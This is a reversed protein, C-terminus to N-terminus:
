FELSLGLGGGHPGVIPVLQLSSDSEGKTENKPLPKNFDTPLFSEDAKLQTTPEYNILADVIGWAMIGLASLGTTIQIQQMRRVLSADELPVQGGFGFKQWQWVFIGISTGGLVAESIFFATGKNKQGNQFQGAGLPLFNIWYPRREIVVLNELAAQLRDREEALERVRADQEAKEKVRQKVDDFFDVAEETFLLTDLTLELDLYLAEEFEKAANRENGVEFHCVALLVHAEVLDETRALQADPYLLLDLLPMAKDYAGVRFAERADALDQAPTAHATTALAALLV